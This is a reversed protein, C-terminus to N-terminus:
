QFPTIECNLQISNIAISTSQDYKMRRLLFNDEYKILIQHKSPESLKFATWNLLNIVM